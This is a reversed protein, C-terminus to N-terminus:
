NEMPQLIFYMLIMMKILFLLLVFYKQQVKNVLVGAEIKGIRRLNKMKENEMKTM